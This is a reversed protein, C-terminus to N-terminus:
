WQGRLGFTIAWFTLEPFMDHNRQDGIAEAPHSDGTQRIQEANFTFTLKDSFRYGLMGGLTRTTMDALRYDASAYTPLAEGRTLSIRFFDARSQRSLRYHPVLFFRDGLRLHYKIDGTHARVGWDDQYYRYDLHLSDKGVATVLSGKLSQRLRTDPRKEWLYDVPLGSNADVLSILKYPDTQYGNVYSLTYNLSLLTFRNLVYSLGLLGEFTQKIKGPFLSEEEEGGAGGSASTVTQTTSTTAAPLAFISTLPDHFGGNPNVADYSYAGGLTITLRKNDLDELYSFDAGISRYDTETSFNIGAKYRSLRDFPRMWSLNVALRNDSFAPDLPTFGPKVSFRSFDQQQSSANAGNPTAGTLADYVLQVQTYDDIANQGTVLLVPEIVSVRDQGQNDKESYNLVSADYFWDTAHAPSSGLLTCAALRLKHKLQM